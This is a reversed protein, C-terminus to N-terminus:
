DNCPGRLSSYVSPKQSPRHESLHPSFSARSGHGQALARAYTIVKGDISHREGRVPLVKDLPREMLVCAGDLAALSAQALPRLLGEMKEGM